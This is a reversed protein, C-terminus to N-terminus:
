SRAESPRTESSRTESPRTESPRTEPPRMEHPRRHDDTSTPQNSAHPDHVIVQINLKDQTELVCKSWMADEIAECDAKKKALRASELEDKKSKEMAQKVRELKAKQM